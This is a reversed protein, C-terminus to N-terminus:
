TYYAINSSGALIFKRKTVLTNSKRLLYKRITGGNRTNNYMSM